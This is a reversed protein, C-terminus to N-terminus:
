KTNVFLTDGDISVTESDSYLLGFLEAPVYTKEDILMPAAGFSFPATLGIATSSAKYYSDVGIRLTTNVEGNDIKVSDDSGNWEVKFGLEEAVARLPVLVVGNEVQTKAGVLEKSNVVIKTPAQVSEQEATAPPAVVTRLSATQAPFSELVIEYWVFLRSGKEISDTSVAQKTLYASIPNDDLITISYAGDDSLVRVGGEIPTVEGVTLYSARAGEDPLNTVLAFAASQAPESMELMPSYYATIEDGKGLSSLAIPDGSESDIMLTSDLVSLLLSENEDYKNKLLLRTHGDMEEISEISGHMMKQTEKYEPPAIVVDPQASIPMILPPSVPAEVAYVSISSVVMLSSLGISVFKKLGNSSM